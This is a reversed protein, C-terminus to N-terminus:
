KTARIDGESLSLRNLLESYSGSDQVHKFSATVANLMQSDGKRIVIGDRNRETNPGKGSLIPSAEAFMGPREKILNAAVPWDVYSLKVSGKALENLAENQNQFVKMEMPAQGSCESKVRELARMQSSGAMMSVSHGCVDAESQVKIHSGPKTVLRLGGVFVPVFDFIKQREETIGVQAAVVDFKKAILGPFLGSFALNVFKPKLCMGEAIRSLLEPSFGAPGREGLYSMPPATLSTGITLYGPEVLDAPADVACGAAFSKTSIMIVGIAVLSKYVCNKKNM